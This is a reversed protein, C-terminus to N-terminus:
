SSDFCLFILFFGAVVAGVYGFMMEHLHWDLTINKSLAESWFFFSMLWVPVFCLGLLGAEM